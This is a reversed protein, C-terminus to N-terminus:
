RCSEEVVQELERRRTEREDDTLRRYSGDPLKFLQRAAGALGQLNHRAADCRQRAIRATEAAEAAEEAALQRDERNDAAQQLRQELQARARAPEAPPPPPPIVEADSRGQDPAFQSYVVNGDADTYKYFGEAPAQIAALLLSTAVLVFFSRARM